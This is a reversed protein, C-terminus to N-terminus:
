FTDSNLSSYFLTNGKLNFLKEACRLLQESTVAEYYEKEREFNEACSLTEALALGSSREEIKIESKLLVTAVRNKVKTLNQAIPTAFNLNELYESVANYAKQLSVGKAPRGGIIFLGTDFTETIYATIDTFLARKTIFEQYLLSSQGSGLLDSLLDCAHYDPHLRSCMPRGTMLM